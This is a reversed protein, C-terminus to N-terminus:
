EPTKQCLIMGIVNMKVSLTSCFRDLYQVQSQEWLNYKTGPRVGKITPGGSWAGKM